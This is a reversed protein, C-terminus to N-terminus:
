ERLRRSTLHLFVDELTPEISRIFIIKGGEREILRNLDALIERSNPSHVRLFGTGTVPDSIDVTVDDVGQLDKVGKAIDPVMATVKLELFDGKRVLSKLSSPADVAVLKGQDIIAVRDCLLDAEEMYHTSMFITIGYEENLISKIFYRVDYAVKPDLGITPEDLFLIPTRIILAKALILKQRMGSSLFFPVEDRKDGLELLSLAQEIREHAVGNTLGYLRAFFRLNQEVTLQDHIGFFGGSMVVNTSSRVEDRERRIDFGNVLAEGEDPYLLCVLLKILTTKGAGNPGLLGLFEGRKVKLNINDVATIEKREKKLLKLKVLDTLQVTWEESQQTGFRKTLNM